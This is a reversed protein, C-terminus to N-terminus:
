ISHTFPPWVAHVCWIQCESMIKNYDLITAKLRSEWGFIDTCNKQIISWGHILSPDNADRNGGSQFCNLLYIFGWFVWLYVRRRAVFTMNEFKAHLKEFVASRANKISPPLRLNIIPGLMTLIQNSSSRQSGGHQRASNSVTGSEWPSRQLASVDPDCWKRSPLLSKTCRDGRRQLMRLLLAQWVKIGGGGLSEWEKCDNNAAVRGVRQNRYM